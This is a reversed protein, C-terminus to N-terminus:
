SMLLSVHLTHPADNNAVLTLKLSKNNLDPQVLINFVDAAPISNKAVSQAQKSLVYASTFVKSVDVLPLSLIVEGKDKPTVNIAYTHLSLLNSIKTNTCSVSIASASSTPTASANVTSTTTTPVTSNPVLTTQLGVSSLADLQEKIGDIDRHTTYLMYSVVVITSSLLLWLLTNSRTM